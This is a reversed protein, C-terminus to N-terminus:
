KKERYIDVKTTFITSNHIKTSDDYASGNKEADADAMGGNDLHLIIQSLFAPPDPKHHANQHSTCGQKDGVLGNRGNQSSESKGTEPTNQFHKLLLLTNDFAPERLVRIPM